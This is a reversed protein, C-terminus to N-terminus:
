SLLLRLQMQVLSFLSSLFSRLPVLTNDVVIHMNTAKKFKGEEIAQDSVHTLAAIILRFFLVLSDLVAIPIAINVTLVQEQLALLHLLLLVALFPVMDPPVAAGVSVLGMSVLSPQLELKVLVQLIDGLVLGPTAGILPQELFQTTRALCLDLMCFIGVLGVLFASVFTSM